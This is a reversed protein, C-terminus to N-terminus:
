KDACTCESLQKITNIEEVKNKILMEQLKNCKCSLVLVEQRIEANVAQIDNINNSTNHLQEKLFAAENSTLDAGNTDMAERCKCQCEMCQRRARELERKLPGAIVEKLQKLELKYDALNDNLTKNKNLMDRNIKKVRTLEPNDPDTGPKESFMTSCLNLAKQFSEEKGNLDKLEDSLRQEECAMERIINIMTLDQSDVSECKTPPNYTPVFHDAPSNNTTEGRCESEKVPQAECDQFPRRATSAGCMNSTRNRGRDSENNHQTIGKEISSKSNLNRVLCTSLM